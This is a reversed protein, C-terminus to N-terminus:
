KNLIALIGGCQVKEIEEEEQQHQQQQPSVAANLSRLYVM